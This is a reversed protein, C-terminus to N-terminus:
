FLNAIDETLMKMVSVGGVDGGIIFLARKIQM